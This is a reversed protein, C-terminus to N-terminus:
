RVRDQLLHLWYQQEWYYLSKRLLYCWLYVQVMCTCLEVSCRMVMYWTVGSFLVSPDQM